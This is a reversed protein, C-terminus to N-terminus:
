DHKIGNDDLLKKLRAIEDAQDSITEAQDTITEAQDSITKAQDSITAAQSALKKDKSAQMRIFDEREQAVKRILKNNNSLYASEAASALYENDQAIMKLEEWTKAKFLRAWKDIGHAIDEDTALDEHNLEIVILNFSDTYLYGDKVNRMQYKSYFEPHDEFLTFDLFGIQYVSQVNEYDDGHDLSDFERCM